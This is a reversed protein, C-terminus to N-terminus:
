ERAIELNAREYNATTSEWTNFDPLSSQLERLGGKGKKLFILVLAARRGDEPVKGTM